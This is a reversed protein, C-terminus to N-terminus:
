SLLIIICQLIHLIIISIFDAMMQYKEEILLECVFVTFMIYITQKVIPKQQELM